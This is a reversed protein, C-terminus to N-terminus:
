AARSGSAAAVLARFVNLWRPDVSQWLAEPHCQVGVVFPATEHELAEIVGDEARGVIRLGPAIDKIGQHHLSNTRLRTAELFSALKCGPELILEHATEQFSDTSHNIRSDPCQSALDQYLTGGLAVNLVQIGRCVALLPKHHEMAWRVIKFEVTDRRDCILGLSPHPDENYRAPNVDQGGVLLLGGCCDFLSRLAESHDLLPIILPAGGAAEVARLYSDRVAHSLAGSGTTQDIRACIGIVPPHHEM